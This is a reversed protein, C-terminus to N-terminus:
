ASPNWCMRKKWPSLSMVTALYRRFRERWGPQKELRMSYCVDCRRGRKRDAELGAVREFWEAEDYAGEILPIRLIGALRRM